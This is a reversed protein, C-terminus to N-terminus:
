KQEIELLDVVNSTDDSFLGHITIENHGKKFSHAPLYALFFHDRPNVSNGATSEHDSNKNWIPKSGQPRLSSIKLATTKTTSHIIGNVAIAIALPEAKLDAPLDSIRGEVYAPVAPSEPKVSKFKQLNKITVKAGSPINTFESTAKGLLEKHPGIAQIGNTTNSGFLSLKYNLAQELETDYSTFTLPLPLYSFRKRDAPVHSAASLGGVSWPIDIGLLNGLTPVIDITQMPQDSIKGISQGPLKLIWPVYLSGAAQIRALEDPNTEYRDWYYSTGHDSTVLIMADDYLGLHELRDLIRGLLVDVFGLQLLHAQYAGEATTQDPWDLTGTAERFHMTLFGFPLSHIQGDENYAFPFHPLLSHLFYFSPLNRKQISDIFQQIVSLRKYSDKYPWDPTEPTELRENAFGRWQGEIQPLHVRM